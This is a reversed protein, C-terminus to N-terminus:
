GRGRNKLYGASRGEVIVLESGLVKPNSNLFRAERDLNRRGQLTDDDSWVCYSDGNTYNVYLDLKSM